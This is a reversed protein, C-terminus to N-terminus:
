GQKGKINTDQRKRYKFIKYYIIPVVLIFALSLINVCLRFPHFFSLKATSGSVSLKHQTFNKLDFRFMEEKGKCILFLINTERYLLSAFGIGLSLYIAFKLIEHGLKREKGCIASASCVM